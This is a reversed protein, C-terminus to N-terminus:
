KHPSIRKLMRFGVSRREVIIKSFLNNQVWQHLRGV